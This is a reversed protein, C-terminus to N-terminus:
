RLKKSMYAGDRCYGLKEYYKRTGVASLVALKEMGWEDRAIREAELMLKAGLGRHQWGSKIREGVKVVRGYVRLERVIATGPTIEPRHANESPRRLRLFGAIHEDGDEWSLFVELGGSARYERRVIQFEELKEPAVRALGVERCRICRCRKGMEALRRKALERLNGAKVGAVIQSAPIDRQIRMIRLWPPVIAKVRAIFDVIEDLSPPDYEGRLYMKYLESSEVVLTPYIKLMDPKFDEDNLLKVFSQFDRELNSFPLGPMMHALITFGADKAIRFAEITDKVTHGRKVKALVEDDLTQVGIEVGTAGYSLMLDVHEEKCFDPRTEFTLGVCRREATENFKIAEQLSGARFGNLGDFCGKVFEEQYDRPFSLFTGGLIILKVKSITHGIAELQKLRATVQAFADYNYEVGRRAAPELGTYSKPTNVEVGGPCYICKAHPPCPMPKSMVTVVAIGSLSRAPKVVLLHLVEEPPNKIVSLIESNSPVKPLSYRRAVEIKLKGLKERNITPSSLLRQAIEMLAEEYSALKTAM